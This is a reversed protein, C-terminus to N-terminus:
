GDTVVLLGRELMTEVFELLYPEIEAEPREFDRAIETLAAGVSKERGLVEVMRGASANLGHFKQTQLNLVVTESAFSRFVVHEPISM